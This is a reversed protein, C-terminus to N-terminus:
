AIRSSRRRDVVVGAQWEEPTRVGKAKNCPSCARVLNSVHNRGGRHLPIVHDWGTADGGCYTCPGDILRVDSAHLREISGAARARRNAFYCSSTAQGGVMTWRRNRKASRSATARVRAPHRLRYDRQWAARAERQEPTM